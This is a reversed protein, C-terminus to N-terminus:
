SRQAAHNLGYKTFWSTSKRTYTRAIPSERYFAIKELWSGSTSVAATTTGSKTWTVTLTVEVLDTTVASVSRALYFTVGSAAIATDFTTDDPTLSTYDAATFSALSSISSWSTLRLKEMEHNLIQNAITQRRATALMESGMTIAQIMGMFGVVLIVSAMMVEVITFGGVSRKASSRRSLDAKRLGPLGTENRRSLGAKRISQPHSGM